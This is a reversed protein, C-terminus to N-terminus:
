PDPKAVMRLVFGRDSAQTLWATFSNVGFSVIEVGHSLAIKWRLLIASEALIAVIKILKGGFFM